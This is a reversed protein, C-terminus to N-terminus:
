SLTKLEMKGILYASNAENIIDESKMGLNELSKVISSQEQLDSMSISGMGMTLAISKLRDILNEM